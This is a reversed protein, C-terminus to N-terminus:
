VHYPVYEGDSDQDFMEGNPAIAYGDITYRLDEERVYDGDSTYVGHYTDGHTRLYPDGDPIPPKKEPPRPPEEKEQRHFLAYM